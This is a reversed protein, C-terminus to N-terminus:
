PVLETIAEAEPFRLQPHPEIALWSVYTKREALFKDFEEATEPPLFPDSGSRVFPFIAVRFLFSNPTVEDIHDLHLTLTKRDRDALAGQLSAFYVPVSTFGASSTDIRVQIGPVIELWRSVDWREWLTAGPITTGSAIRPRALARTQRVAFSTNRTLTGNTFQIEALAVGNRVSFRNIPIWTLKTDNRAGAGGSCCCDAGTHDMWESEQGIVLYVPDNGDPFAINQQERLVLVRGYADYAVGSEVTVGSNDASMEVALGGLIGPVVGYADHLARNHWATLEGDIRQQDTFDRRQLLQGQRYRLRQLERQASTSM